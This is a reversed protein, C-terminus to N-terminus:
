DMATPIIKVDDVAIGLLTTCEAQAPCVGLRGVIEVFQPHTKLAAPEAISWALYVAAPGAHTRQWEQYTAGNEYLRNAVALGRVRVCRGALEPALLAPVLDRFEVHQSTKEACAALPAPPAVPAPMPKTGCAALAVAAALLLVAALPHRM